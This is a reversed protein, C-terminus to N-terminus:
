AWGARSVIGELAPTEFETGRVRNRRFPFLDIGGVSLANASCWLLLRRAGGRGRLPHDFQKGLVRFKTRALDCHLLFFEATAQDRLHCGDNDRQAV